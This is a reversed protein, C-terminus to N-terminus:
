TKIIFNLGMVPQINNHATDTGASSTTVPNSNTASISDVVAAQTGAGGGNGPVAHTHSALEGVTLVHTEEGKWGALPVATLASGGTPAGTGSSGGGTGTGVGQPVRGRLDPVNFTTSADGAGYTTAIITFLASYTSRSVASGDCLLWGTPASSGAYPTIMAVPVLSFNIMSPDNLYLISIGARSDKYIYGNTSDDYDLIKTEGVRHYIECVILKGVPYTPAVPSAAETGATIGITGTSDVTILDIRPNGAPATFVSTSGGLFNVQTIGVYFFGPEIYVSMTNSTWTGSTITTSATFSNLLQQVSTNFHSIVMNTTVVSFDLYQVLKQNAASLAVVNTNTLGPNNLLTLLNQITLAATGAILFNGAVSGISSVATCVIASGNITLTVTQGNTANTGLALTGLQNHPLFAGASKADAVLSNYQGSSGTQGSTVPTSRM